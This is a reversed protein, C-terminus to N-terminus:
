MEKCFYGFFDISALSFFFVYPPLSLSLSFSLSTYLSFFFCNCQTYQTHRPCCCPHRPIPSSFLLAQPLSFSFYTLSVLSRSLIQALSGSHASTFTLMMYLLLLRFTLLPISVSLGCTICLPLSPYPTLLFLPSLVSPRALRSPYVQSHLHFTSFSPVGGGFVCM